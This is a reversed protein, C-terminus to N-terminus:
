SRHAEHWHRRICDDTLSILGTAILVDGLDISVEEEMIRMSCPPIWGGQVAEKRRQKESLKDSTILALCRGTTLNVMELSFVTESGDKYVNHRWSYTEGWYEFDYVSSDNRPNRSLEVQAYNSFEIRINDTPVTAEIGSRPGCVETEEDADEGKDEPTNQPQPRAVLAKRFKLKPFSVEFSLKRPAATSRTSKAAPKVYKRTSSCVERGSQRQYRRLSFKREALDYMRLHFLTLKVKHGKRLTMETDVRINLNGDPTTDDHQILIRRTSPFLKAFESPTCGLADPKYCTQRALPWLSSTQRSEKESITTSAYTDCSARPDVDHEHEFQSPEHDTQQTQCTEEDHPKVVPKTYSHTRTSVSSASPASGKSWARSSSPRPM